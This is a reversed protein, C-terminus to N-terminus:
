EVQPMDDAILVPLPRIFGLFVEADGVLTIEKAQKVKLRSSGDL